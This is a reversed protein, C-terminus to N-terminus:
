MLRGACAFYKSWYKDDLSSITIGHSSSAHVFFNNALYIGVHSIKSGKINFFVLDGEKCQDKQWILEATGFQAIATRLLSAGFVQDYVRQVFASCDIGKKSNGGFRYRVGYWEDIFKYLSLNCISEPMVRLMGAYKCALSKGFEPDIASAPRDAARPALELSHEPGKVSLNELYKPTLSVKQSLSPQVFQRSSYCSTLLSPFALSALALILSTRKKIM